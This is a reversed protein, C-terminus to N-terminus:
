RRPATGRNLPRSGHRDGDENQRDRGVGHRRAPRADRELAPEPVARQRHSQQSQGPAAEGGVEVATRVEADPEVPRRSRGEITRAPVEHARKVARQETGFVPSADLSRARAIAELRQGDRLEEPLELDM